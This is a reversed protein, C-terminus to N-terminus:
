TVTPRRAATAGIEELIRDLAADPDPAATVPRGIVLLDAGDRLASAPTAVRKQDQVGAGAPRIGPVVTFFGPGCADRIGPLDAASCVVGDLGCDKALLALRRAIAEPAGALPLDALARADISTLLTVGILRALGGRTAAERAAELMARGGSAHVNVMAAGSRAASTVAGAVTAPIDHFKLDLFVKARGAAAVEAVLPPGEAVFAELGVKLWGVRGSFRRAAALADARSGYDLAICLRDGASM